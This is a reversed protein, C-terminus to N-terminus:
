MGSLRRSPRDIRARGPAVRHGQSLLKKASEAFLLFGIMAACVLRRPALGDAPVATVILTAVAALALLVGELV